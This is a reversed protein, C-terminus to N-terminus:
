ARSRRPSRAESVAELGALIFRTLYRVDVRRRDTSASVSALVVGTAMQASVVPDPSGVRTLTDALVTGPGDHFQDSQANALRRHALPTLLTLSIEVFTSIASSTDTAHALADSTHARWRDGQRAVVVARLDASSGFYEYAAPRSLGCADAAASMTVASVGGESLLDDAAELLARQRFERNEAVSSAQIRPM